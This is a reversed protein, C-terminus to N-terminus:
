ALEPYAAAVAAEELELIRQYDSLPRVVVDALLLAERVDALAPDAVARRLGARLRELDEECLDRRTIYPLAPADATSALVLLRETFAPQTRKMLHFTVGDIACVDAEGGAVMEMSRRHNGSTIAEGFFHGNEALGAVAHRLASYGSQSNDGNFAVRRGRLGALSDVPDDVRVLIESHYAGGTCGRCAYVPTAVLTVQGALAHTLPYGCTQSFLLDPATWLAAIDDSRTLRDPVNELGESRFAAALGSWWADTAEELGPLDYMPLSARM